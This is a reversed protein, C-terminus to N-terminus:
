FSGSTMGLAQRITAGNTEVDPLHRGLPEDLGLRGEQVLQLIVTAVMTKTISGLRFRHEPRMREGSGADAAGLAVEVRERGPAEVIAVLGPVGMRRMGEALLPLLRPGLRDADM